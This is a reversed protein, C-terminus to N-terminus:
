ILHEFVATYQRFFGVPGGGRQLRGVENFAVMRVYPWSVGATDVLVYARGDRYSRMLAVAALVVAMTVRLRWHPLRLAALWPAPTPHDPM